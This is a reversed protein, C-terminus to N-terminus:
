DTTVVSGFVSRGKLLEDDGQASGLLNLLTPVFDLHSYEADSIEPSVGPVRIIMPVPCPCNSKVGHDATVILISSEYLGESKLTSIFRGLLNDVFRIQQRYNESENGGPGHKTGDPNYVYPYHPLIVHWYWLHGPGDTNQIDELVRSTQPEYVSPLYGIFEFISAPVVLNLYQSIAWKGANVPFRSRAYLEGRCTATQNICGFQRALVSKEEYIHLGYDNALREFLTPAKASEPSEPLTGTLFTAIVLDTKRNLTQANRLWVADQALTAFNPVIDTDFLGDKVIEDYELEDWMIIFISPRDSPGHSSVSASSLTGSSTNWAPGFLGAQVVFIGLLLFALPTLYIFFSNLLRIGFWFVAAVALGSAVGVVQNTDGLYRAWSDVPSVGLLQAQRAVSVFVFLYILTRWARVIKGHGLFRCFISDVTIILLTPLILIAVIVYIFFLGSTPFHEPNNLILNFLAQSIGVTSVTFSLFLRDTAVRSKWLSQVIQTINM